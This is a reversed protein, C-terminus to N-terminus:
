SSERLEHRLATADDWIVHRLHSLRDNVSHEQDPRVVHGNATLILLDNLSGMGGFADLVHDFAAADYTELENRCRTAWSLWRTEGHDRLLITTEDLNAILRALQADFATDSVTRLTSTSQVCM